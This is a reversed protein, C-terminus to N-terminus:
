PLSLLPDVSPSPGPPPAARPAPGASDGAGGAQGARFYGHGALGRRAARRQCGVACPSNKIPGLLIFSSDPFRPQNVAAQLAAHEAASSRSPEAAQAPPVDGAVAAGLPAPQGGAGLAAGATGPAPVAEAGRGRKWGAAQTRSM